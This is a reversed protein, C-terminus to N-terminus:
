KMTVEYITLEDLWICLALSCSHTSRTSMDLVYSICHLLKQKWTSVFACCMQFLRCSVTWYVEKTQMLTETNDSHSLPTIRWIKYQQVNTAWRHLLNMQLLVAEKRSQQQQWDLDACPLLLVLKSSMCHCSKRPHLFRHWKSLQEEICFGHM